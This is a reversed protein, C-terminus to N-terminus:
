YNEKNDYFPIEVIARIGHRAMMGAVLVRLASVTKGRQGIIRGIDEQPCDVMFQTTRDGPIYRVSIKAPEQVLSRLLQELLNRVHERADM